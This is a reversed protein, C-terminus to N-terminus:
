RCGGIDCHNNCAHRYLDVNTFYEYYWAAETCDGYAMVVVFVLLVVVAFVLFGILTDAAYSM